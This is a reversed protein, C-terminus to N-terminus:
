ILTQQKVEDNRAARALKEIEPWATVLGNYALAESAWKKRECLSYLRYALDRAPEAASGLKRLLMSAGLEGETDLARILHQVTEWHRLRKDTAPDWDDPLEDRKLLRVKGGGSKVIGADELAKVATNKAKSLTEATGYSGEDVGHEEFWALAWRTDADFEGEQEALVEDLSQNILALATRVTMAEGDAEMVKAYRTFVAMGPGIAAQALDVPAINGQQLHRLAEPLESKLTNLFERRTALSASDPRKRCCLVISSALANSVIGITRAERETRVPWTGAISFGSQILGSLMTEWGTSAHSAGADGAATTGASESQKFAYFVTLPVDEDRLEHLRTFTTDFGDEFYDRSAKANGGHRYPSAILESAKPTVMTGLLEDYHDALSARLWVYFFDSLDAYAINDYYPPDTSVCVSGRGCDVDAYRADRQVATGNIGAPLQDLVKPIFDFTKDWGGGSQSFLNNEGFDWAMPIGQRTFLHGVHLKSPVPSWTCITNNLDALRSVAFALYTAIARDYGKYGSNPDDLRDGLDSKLQDGVKGVLDSLTGLGILQRKTFLKEFSDIGYGLCWLNRPDDALPAEIKSLADQVNSPLTADEIQPTPCVDPSLFVRGRRGEAIIAMLRSGLAGQKGAAKVHEEPIPQDTIVCSFKCGRGIKTGSDISKLINESPEGVKVVFKYEVTGPEIIPEIWAKAGPRKSLWYSSCLPVQTQNAAPNPSSVTRSWIWAIVTLEEDAYPELDPRAGVMERSIKIRPYLHGIRKEAEDRMWKGYYRVDEALGEAGRWERAKSKPDKRSKPNVPPRGAFKPPIEILAKNILVAVPNLDSAYARLGLRQAELPISGGGAFPDLVPPAHTALFDNVVSEPPLHTVGFAFRVRAEGKAGKKLKEAGMPRPLVWCDRILRGVTYDPTLPDDKSLEGLEVKRSAVCRAIEARASRIVEPNNSNEWQVLEEILSFLEARKTGAANADGAFQPDSDPDDVLSAFLVARCAALPRRAWWLHLTSPHGHRISKERASAENIAKLPLAVEILKKRHPATM